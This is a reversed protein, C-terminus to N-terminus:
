RPLKELKRLLLSNDPDEFAPRVQPLHDIHIPSRMRLFCIVKRCPHSMRDATPFSFRQNDIRNTEVFALPQGGQSRRAGVKKMDGLAKCAWIVVREMIL